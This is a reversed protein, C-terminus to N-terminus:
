IWFVLFSIFPQNLEFSLLYLLELVSTEKLFFLYDKCYLGCMKTPWFLLIQMTFFYKIRYYMFWYTHLINIEDQGMINNKIHPLFVRVSTLINEKEINSGHYALQIIHWPFNRLVFQTSSHLDLKGHMNSTFINKVWNTEVCNTQCVKWCPRQCMVLPNMKM